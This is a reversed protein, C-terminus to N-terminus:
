ASSSALTLAISSPSRSKRAVEALQAEISKLM